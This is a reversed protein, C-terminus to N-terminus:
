PLRKRRSTVLAALADAAVAILCAAGLFIMLQADM